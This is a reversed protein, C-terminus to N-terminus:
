RSTSIDGVPQEFLDLHSAYSSRRAFVYTTTRQLPTSRTCRLMHIKKLPRTTDQVLLESCLERSM